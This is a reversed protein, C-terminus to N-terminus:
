LGWYADLNAMEARSLGLECVVGMRGTFRVGIDGSTGIYRNNTNRNYIIYMGAFGAMGAPIQAPGAALTGAIDTLRDLNNLTYTITGM